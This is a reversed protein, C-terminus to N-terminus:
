LPLVGVKNSLFASFKSIGASAANTAAVLQDRLDDALSPDDQREIRQRLSSFYGL